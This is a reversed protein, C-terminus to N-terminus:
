FAEAIDNIGRTRKALEKGRFELEEVLKAVDEKQSKLAVREEALQAELRLNEQPEIFLPTDSTIARLFREKTIQEVYSFRLKAFLEQVSTM